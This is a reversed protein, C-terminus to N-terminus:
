RKSIKRKDRTVSGFRKGHGHDAGLGSQRLGRGFQLFVDVHQLVRYETQAHHDQHTRVVNIYSWSSGDRDTRARADSTPM